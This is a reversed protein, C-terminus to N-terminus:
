DKKPELKILRGGTYDYRGTIHEFRNINETHIARDKLTLLSNGLKDKPTKEPKTPLIDTKNIIISVYAENMKNAKARTAEKVEQENAYVPRSIIQRPLNSIIPVWSQIRSGQSSYLSIYIEQQGEQVQRRGASEKQEHIEDTITVYEAFENRINELKNGIATLFKSNNWPGQDVAENLEDLIKKVQERSLENKM